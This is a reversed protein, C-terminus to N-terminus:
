SLSPVTPHLELSTTIQSMPWGTGGPPSLTNARPKRTALSIPVEDSSHLSLLHSCAMRPEQSGSFDGRPSEDSAVRTVFHVSDGLGAIVRTPYYVFALKKLAEARSTGGQMQPKLVPQFRMNESPNLRPQGPIMM